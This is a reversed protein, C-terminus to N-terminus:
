SKPLGAKELVRDLDDLSFYQIEIRGQNKNKRPYIKVQTGFWSTLQSELDIIEPSLNRAQKAGRRHAVSRGVIAEVQRVSLNEEVIRKALQRQHEPTLLGLLARAHGSSLRGTALMERVPEPLRLLRVMNAVTARNKGVRKAVDDQSLANQEMLKYYAQAEELPNLDERQINEILGWELFEQPALDKIIAPIKELGCKTAARLRREGCILIFGDKSKSVIVPQLIGKEKISQALEEISEESFTQRPQDPNPKIKQIELMQLGQPLAEKEAEPKNMLVPPSDITAPAVAKGQSFAAAAKAASERIYSDPILASLGKGLAKKM